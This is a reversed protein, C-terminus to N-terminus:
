KVRFVLRGVLVGVNALVLVAILGRLWPRGQFGHWGMTQSDSSKKPVLAYGSMTRAIAEGNYYQFRLNTTDIGYFINGSPEWGTIVTFHDLPVGEENRGIAEQQPSASYALHVIIPKLSNILDTPSLQKRAECAVGFHNACEVLDQLSTGKSSIKLSQVVDSYSVTTKGNIKLFIYLANPGCLRGKQFPQAYQLYKPTDMGKSIPFHIMQGPVVSGELKPPDQASCVNSMLTLVYLFAASRRIHRMYKNVVRM